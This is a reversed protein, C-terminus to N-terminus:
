NSFLHVQDSASAPVPFAIFPKSIKRPLRNEEDPKGKAQASSTMLIMGHELSTVRKRLSINEDELKDM